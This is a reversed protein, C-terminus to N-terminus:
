QKFNIMKIQIDELKLEQDETKAFIKLIHNEPKNIRNFEFYSVGEGYSNLINEKAFHIIPAEHYYVNSGSVTDDIAVIIQSKEDSSFDNKLRVEIINTNEFSHFNNAKDILLPFWQQAPVIKNGLNLSDHHQTTSENFAYEKKWLFGRFRIDQKLFVQWYSSKNMEGWHLIFYRYQYTQILNLPIALIAFGIILYRWFKRLENLSIALIIFFITYYDVFARHGFSAGYYWCEWSSIIYSVLIFFLSWSILMFYKKNIIFAYIGTFSIILLPTYVFLGKRYSFLVKQFVPKLFNFGEGQYSYIFFQKTEIYWLVSQISFLGFFIMLGLALLWGKRVTQIITEKLTLVSGSLFPLFFIIIGNMQRLIIILGLTFAALLFSKNSKTVFYNKSFYLFATIAFFSYVHSYSSDCYTYHTLATAFVALFQVFLIIWDDIKYHKLLKKLFYLGLMLYFLAAYYIAKQYPSSYGDQPMDLKPAMVHAGIFFPSVLLATGCPYKNIKYSEYDIYMPLNNIRMSIDISDNIGKSPFDNYIFISPLYDYYGQGDGKITTDLPNLYFNVTLFLILVVFFEPIITTFLKKMTQKYEM